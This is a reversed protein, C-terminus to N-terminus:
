QARNYVATFTVKGNPSTMTGKLVLTKGDPSVQGAGTEVVNGNADKTVWQVGTSSRTYAATFSGNISVIKHDKGDIPGDYSEIYSKGDPMVGKLNWKLHDADDTNVVLQEFKPATTNSFTSRSLDLKWTGVASKGASETRAFANLAILMLLGVCTISLALKRSHM